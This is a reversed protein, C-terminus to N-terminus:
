LSRRRNEIIGTVEASWDCVQRCHCQTMHTLTLPLPCVSTKGGSTSVFHSDMSHVLIPINGEGNLCCHRDTEFGARFTGIVRHDECVDCKGRANIAFTSGCSGNGDTRPYFNLTTSCDGEFGWCYFELAAKIRLFPNHNVYFLLLFLLLLNTHMRSNM